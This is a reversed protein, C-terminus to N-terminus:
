VWAISFNGLSTVFRMTEDLFPTRLHQILNLIEIEM